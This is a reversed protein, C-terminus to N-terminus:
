RADRPELGGACPCRTGMFSGARSRLRDATGHVVGPGQGYIISGLDSISLDRAALLEAITPLLVRAHARPAEVHTFDVAGDVELAVSCPGSSTEIALIANMCAGSRLNPRYCVREGARAALGVWPM